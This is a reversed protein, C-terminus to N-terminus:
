FPFIMLFVGICPAPPITIIGLSSMFNWLSTNIVASINNTSPIGNNIESVKSIVKVTTLRRASLFDMIVNLYKLYIYIYEKFRPKLIVVMFTSTLNESGWVNICSISPPSINCMDLELSCTVSIYLCIGTAFYLVPDILCLKGKLLNGLINQDM